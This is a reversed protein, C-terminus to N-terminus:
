TFLIGHTLSAGAFPDPVGSFALQYGNQFTADAKRYTVGDIVMTTFPIADKSTFSGPESSAGGNGRIYLLLTGLGGGTASFQLSLIEGVVGPTGGAGPAVSLNAPTTSGVQGPASVWSYANYRRTSSDVVLVAAASTTTATVVDSYAGAGAANEARVRFQYATGAQLGTVTRNIGAQTTDLSWTSDAARKYEIRYSIPPTGVTDAQWTLPVSSSDATGAALGMVQGPALQPAAQVFSIQRVRGYLGSRM